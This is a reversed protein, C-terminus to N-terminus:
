AESSPPPIRVVRVRVGGTVTWTITGDNQLFRGAELEVMLLDNAALALSLSGKDKLSSPPYDGADFVVAATSGDQEELLFVVRDEGGLHPMTSDGSLDVVGTEGTNHDSGSAVLDASVTNISLRTPTVTVDAM